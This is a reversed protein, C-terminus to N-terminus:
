QNTAIRDRVLRLSELIDDKFAKIEDTSTIRRKTSGIEVPPFMIWKTRPTYKFRAVDWSGIVASVYNDSKRTLRLDNAGTIRLLIEFIEIEEATADIEREQGYNQFVLCM